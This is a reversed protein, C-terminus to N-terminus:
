NDEAIHHLHYHEVWRGKCNDCTMTFLVVSRGQHEPEADDAARIITVGSKCFPCHDADSAVYHQSQEDTLPQRHALALHRAWTAKARKEWALPDEDFAQRTLEGHEKYSLAEVQLIQRISPAEPDTM